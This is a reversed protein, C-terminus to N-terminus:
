GKHEIIIKSVDFWFFSNRVEIEVSIVENSVPSYITKVNSIYKYWAINKIVNNMRQWIIFLGKLGRLKSPDTFRGRFFGKAGESGFYYMCTEAFFEFDNIISIERDSFTRFIACPINALNNKDKEFEIYDSFYHFFEHSLLCSFYKQYTYEHHKSSLQILNQDFYTLGASLFKPHLTHNPNYIEINLKAFMGDSVFNKINERIESLCKFMFNIDITDSIENMCYVIFKTKLTPHYITETKM